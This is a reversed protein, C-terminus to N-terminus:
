EAAKKTGYSGSIEEEEMAARAMGTHEMAGVRLKM